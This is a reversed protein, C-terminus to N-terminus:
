NIVTGRIASVGSGEALGANARSRLFQPEFEDKVYDSSDSQERQIRIFLEQNHQHLTRLFTLFQDHAVVRYPREM